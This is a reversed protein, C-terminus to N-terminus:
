TRLATSFSIVLEIQFSRNHCDFQGVDHTPEPRRVQIPKGSLHRKRVFLDDGVDLLASCLGLASMNVPTLAASLFNVDIMGATFPVSRGTVSVLDMLPELLAGSFQQRTIIKM